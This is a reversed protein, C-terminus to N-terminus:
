HKFHELKEGVRKEGHYINFGGSKIFGVLTMNIQKALNVALSSPAGVALLIPVHAVAAKQVLEFSARGSVLIFANELAVSAPELLSSGILKDLANHRGVDERLRILKGSESFLGAAHLGGTHEFVNQEARLQRPADMISMESVKLVNSIVECSQQVSAISSKGCVGCSSTMYFNRQVSASDFKVGPHLEVRIVNGREEESEVRSCPKISLIDAAVSIIGETYLFGAVLEEDNGPTRMTVMLKQEKRNYEEGYGLRLELPEEVALLDPKSQYQQDSYKKISTAEVRMSSMRYIYM